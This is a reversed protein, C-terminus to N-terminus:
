GATESFVFVELDGQKVEDRLTGNHIFGGKSLIPIIDNNTIDISAIITSQGNEKFAFRIIEKLVDSDLKRKNAYICSLTLYCGAAEMIVIHSLVNDKYFIYGYWLHNMLLYALNDEQFIEEYNLYPDSFVINSRDGKTIYEFNDITLKVIKNKEDIIHTIEEIFPNQEKFYVLSREWFIKLLKLLDDRVKVKSVVNYNSAIIDIIEDVNYKNDYLLEVIYRAMNNLYLDGAVKPRLIAGDDRSVFNDINAKILIPRIM